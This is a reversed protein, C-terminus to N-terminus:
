AAKKIVTDDAMDSTRKKIILYESLVWAGASLIIATIIVMLKKTDDDKCISIVKSCILVMITPILTFSAFVTVTRHSSFPLLEFLNSSALATIIFLAPAYLPFYLPLHSIYQMYMARDLDGEMYYLSYRILESLPFSLCIILTMMVLEINTLIHAKVFTSGRGKVTCFYKGGPVYRSGMDSCGLKNAFVIIWLLVIPLTNESYVMLFETVIYTLMEGTTVCSGYFERVNHIVNFIYNGCILMTTLLGILICGATKLLFSRRFSRGNYIRYADWVSVNCNNKMYKAEKGAYHRLESLKM